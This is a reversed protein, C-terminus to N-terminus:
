GGGKRDVFALVLATQAKAKTEFVGLPIDDATTCSWGGSREFRVEGLRRLGIYIDTEIDDAAPTPRRRM